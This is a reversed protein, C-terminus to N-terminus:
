STEESEISNLRRKVFSRIEEQKPKFILFCFLTIAAFLVFRELSGSLLYYVLGYISPALALSFNIIGWRMLVQETIPLVSGEPATRRSSLLAKRVIYIAPIESLAVALLVWFLIGLDTNSTLNVFNMRIFAGAIVVLVPALVNMLLGLNFLRSHIREIDVPSDLRQVQM